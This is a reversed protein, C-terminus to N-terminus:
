RDVTAPTVVESGLASLPMTAVVVVNRQTAKARYLAEDAASLLDTLSAESTPSCAVGISVTTGLGGAIQQTHDEQRARIEEAVEASAEAADGPLLLAFEEGGLRGFLAGDGVCGCVTAAFDILAADGARHGFTDNLRKFHDLDMMLLSSPQEDRAAAVIDLEALRMFEGRRYADTLDDHTMALHLARYLRKREATACAIVLPGGALLSLGILTSVSIPVPTSLAAANAPFVTLTLSWATSAAIFLTTVFVDGILAAAILAPMAFTLAGLGGMLWAPALSATLLVFPLMMVRWAAAGAPIWAEASPRHTAAHVLAAAPFTLVLPLIVIYNVLEYSFWDLWGSWWTAGFLVVDAVGGMVGASAAAATAVAALWGVSTGRDLSLDLTRIRRFAYCGVLVGVLNAANLLVAKALDSGTALDAALYGLAAGLWTPVRAAMPFRLLLGLLLANAPWFVALTGPMRSYIGILCAVFVLLGFALGTRLRRSWPVRHPRVAENRPPPPDPHHM